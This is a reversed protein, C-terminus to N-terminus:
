TEINYCDEIVMLGLSRTPLVEDPCTFDVVVLYFKVIIGNYEKKFFLLKMSWHHIIEPKCLFLFEKYEQLVKVKKPFTRIRVKVYLKAYDHLKDYFEKFKEYDIKKVVM